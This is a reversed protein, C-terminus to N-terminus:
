GPSTVRGGGQRRDPDIHLYADEPLALDNADKCQVTLSCQHLVSNLDTLQAAVPDLDVSTVSRGCSLAISDAGAGCCVDVVPIGNPFDLATEQACWYDSSQELLIRTWRWNM